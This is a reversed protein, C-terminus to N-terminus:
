FNTQQVLPFNFMANSGHKFRLVGTKKPTGRPSETLVEDEPEPM